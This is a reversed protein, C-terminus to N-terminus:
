LIKTYGTASVFSNQPIRAIVGSVATHQKKNQCYTYIFTYQILRARKTLWPEGYFFHNQVMLYCSGEFSNHKVTCTSQSIATQRDFRLLMNIGALGSSLSQLVSM